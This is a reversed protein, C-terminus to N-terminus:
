ADLKSQYKIWAMFLKKNVCINKYIFLQGKKYVEVTNNRHHYRECEPAYFEIRKKNLGSMNGYLKRFEGTPGNLFCDVIKNFARQEWSLPLLKVTNLNEYYDNKMNTKYYTLKVAKDLSLYNTHDIKNKIFNFLKKFLIVM